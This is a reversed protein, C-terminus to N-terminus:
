EEDFMQELLTADDFYTRFASIKDGTFEAVTCAGLLLERGNPEIVIDEDVAFPGTFKATIRFEVFGKNGFVDLASVDIDVDSLAGERDAVIETLEGLNNVLMNPSWGVVDDTFWDTLKTAEGKIVAALADTLVAARDNAM